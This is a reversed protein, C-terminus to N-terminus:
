AARAMRNYEQEAQAPLLVRLTYIGLATGFPPGLLAIFGLILTLVRAWPQRELLGWGAAFGAIASLLLFGGLLLLIAPLFNRFPWGVGIAPFLFNGVILMAGAGLLRFASVALWLIGLLRLYKALRSEGAPM